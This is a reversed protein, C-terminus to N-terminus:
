RNPGLVYSLSLSPVVLQPDLSLEAAKKCKNYNTTVPLASTISVDNKRSIRCNIAM